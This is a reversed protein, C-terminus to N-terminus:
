RDKLLEDSVTKWVDQFRELEERESAILSGAEAVVPGLYTEIRKSVRRFAVPDRAWCALMADLTLISGDFLRNNPPQPGKSPPDDWLDGADSGGEGVLLSAVWKLFAHMGLHRAIARRDRDADFSPTVEVCQLWDCSLADLSIRFQVLQTHLGVAYEGLFVRAEDRPWELLAGTALGAALKIDPDSPHPLKTSELHFRDGDRVLRGNWEAVFEKRAEDLREAHVDEKPVSRAELTAASIARASGLLANLGEQVTGSATIEAIVEVNKGTWARQTANASGVWLRLHKGKRAAFVKAHLGLSIEEGEDESVTAGDDPVFTSPEVSEPSPTDLVFLNDHFGALPKAVQSAIKTLALETSLITRRTKAGGWSGITKVIGGDLFPSVAIVEDLEKPPTPEADIGEGGTLTIRDIHLREPHLWRVGNIAAKLKAPKFVPLDALAALRAAMEAAGPIPAAHPNKEDAVSTLLLGFDRNVAATLNRSGLWLRWASAAGGNGFEVLSTKPHWSQEREDFDVQRVFQDLIGAIVPLRRPRALRGRQILIRVRGSLLEIAEALDSKAGSGKDDDRGALALLAAAISAIDASYSTLIAGRVESGPDPRLADLYAQSQWDSPKKPEPTASM